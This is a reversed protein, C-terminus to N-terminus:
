TFKAFQVLAIRVNGGADLSDGFFQQQIHRVVEAPLSAHLPEAQGATDSQVAHRIRTKQVLCRELLEINLGGRAISSSGESGRQPRVVRQEALRAFEHHVMGIPTAGVGLRSNRLKEIAGVDGALLEVIVAYREVGY